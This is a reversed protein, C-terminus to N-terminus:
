QHSYLIKGKAPAKFTFIAGGGDGSATLFAQDTGPQFTVNTTGKFKDAYEPPLIVQALAKGQPSVIIVRGGGSMAQYINGDSDVANSDPWGTGDPFGYVKSSALLGSGKDQKELDFSRLSRGFQGI